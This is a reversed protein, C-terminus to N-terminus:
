NGELLEQVIDLDRLGTSEIYDNIENRITERKEKFRDIADEGLYKEIVDVCLKIAANPNVVLANAECKREGYQEIYEAVIPDNYDPRKGSGSILNDIWTLNHEEIFDYNLGFRDIIINSSDYNTALYLDALNKRMYDSIALGYPDHDGCYLLVPKLGQHEADRFRELMDWRQLISSWGKSTAIPIHYVKCVNEFLTVLDIKEVLMQIYYEEGDWWDPTYYKECSLAADLWTRFHEEPTDTDPIEIGNFNRAGETAVFDIPLLGKKRCENIIDQIKNFDGKDILRFGELQYCWGRSSLKFGIKGQIAKLVQSFRYLRVNRRDGRGYPVQFPVEQEIGNLVMRVKM